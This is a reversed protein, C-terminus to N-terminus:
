AVVLQGRCKVQHMEWSRPSTLPSQLNVLLIGFRRVIANNLVNVDSTQPIFGIVKIFDM